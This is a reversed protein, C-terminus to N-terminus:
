DYGVGMPDPGHKIYTPLMQFAIKITAWKADDFRESELPGFQLAYPDIKDLFKECRAFGGDEFADDLFTNFNDMTVGTLDVGQRSAYATLSQAAYRAHARSGTIDM